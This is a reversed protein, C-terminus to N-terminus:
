YKQIISCFNITFIFNERKNQEIYPKWELEFIISHSQFELLFKNQAYNFIDM